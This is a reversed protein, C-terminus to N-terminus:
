VTRSDLPDVALVNLTPYGLGLVDLNAAMPLGSQRGVRMKVQLNTLYLTGPDNSRAGGFPDREGTM